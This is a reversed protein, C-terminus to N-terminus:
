NTILPSSKQTNQILLNQVLRKKKMVFAIYTTLTVLILAFLLDINGYMVFVYFVSGYFYVYSLQQIKKWWSGFIRKSFNNSTVLLIVASIDALHALLAYNALSWYKLTGM